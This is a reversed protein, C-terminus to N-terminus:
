PAVLQNTEVLDLTVTWLNSGSIQVKTPRSQFWANFQAFYQIGGDVLETQDFPEPAKGRRRTGDIEVYPWTCDTIKIATNALTDQAGIRTRHILFLRDIALVDDRHAIASFQWLNAIECTNGYGVLANYATREPGKFEAPIRPPPTDAPFNRLEVSPGGVIELKLYAPSGCLSAPILSM